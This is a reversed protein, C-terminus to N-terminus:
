LPRWSKISNDVARADITARETGEQKAWFTNQTMTPVFGIVCYSAPTLYWWWLLSVQYDHQFFSARHVDDDCKVVKSRYQEWQSFFNLSLSQSHTGASIVLTASKKSEDPYWRKCHRKGQDDDARHVLKLPIVVVVVEVRRARHLRPNRDVHHDRSGDVNDIKQQSDNQLNKRTITSENQTLRLMVLHTHLTLAASVHGYTPLYMCGCRLLFNNVM